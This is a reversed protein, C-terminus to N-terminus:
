IEKNVTKTSVLVVTNGEIINRNRLNLYVGLLVGISLVFNLIGSVMILTDNKVLGYSSWTCDYFVALGRSEVSIGSVDSSTWSSKISPLYAWIVSTLLAFGFLSWGGAFLTVGFTLLMVVPICLGRRDGKFRWALLVSYIQILAPATMISMNLVDGQHLGYVWWVSYAVSSGVLGALYVGSANKHIYIYIRIFQPIVMAMGILISLITLLNLSLDRM